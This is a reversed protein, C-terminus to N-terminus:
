KQTMETLFYCFKEFFMRAQATSCLPHPYDLCLGMGDAVTVVSIFLYTGMKGHGSSFYVEQADWLPDGMKFNIQGLNSVGSPYDRGHYIEELCREFLKAVATKMQSAPTDLMWLYERSALMQKLNGSLRQIEMWWQPSDWDQNFRTNLEPCAFLNGLEQTNEDNLYRRLNIPLMQNLSYAALPTIIGTNSIAWAFAASLLPQM